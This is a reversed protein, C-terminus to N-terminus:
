MLLDTRVRGPPKSESELTKRMLKSGESKTLPYQFGALYSQLGARHVARSSQSPAPVFTLSVPGEGVVSPLGLSVDMSAWLPWIKQSGQELTFIKLTDDSVRGEPHTSAKTGLGVLTQSLILFAGVSGQTRQGARTWCGPLCGSQCGPTPLTRHGTVTM